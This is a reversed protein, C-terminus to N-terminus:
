SSSRTERVIETETGCCSTVLAIISYVKLYMYYSTTLIEPRFNDEQFFFVITCILFAVNCVLYVIMYILMTLAFCDNNGNSCGFSCCAILITIPIICCEIIAFVSIFEKLTAHPEYPLFNNPDEMFVVLAILFAFNALSVLRQFSIM